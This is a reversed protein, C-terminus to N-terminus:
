EQETFLYPVQCTLFHIIFCMGLILLALLIFLMPNSIVTVFENFGLLITLVFFWPPIKATTAVMSRKAEIYALEMDLELREKVVKLRKSDLLILEQGYFLQEDDVSSVLVRIQSSLALEAANKAETYVEEVLDSPKWIRPVGGVYKFGLDFVRRVRRVVNVDSTEERLVQMFIDAINRELVHQHHEKEDLTLDSKDTKSRFASFVSVQHDKLLIIM